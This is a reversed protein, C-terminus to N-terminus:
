RVVVLDKLKDFTAPGVVKRSRLDEISAFPQEERAAIIKAATAPGIGPLTDLEEASAHNIDVLAGGGPSGSTGGATGSSGNSPGLGQPDDRSPVVIQDGDRVLAALNLAAGVRETAVRPGYGGAAAIADGVRSGPALHVVGPHVVAGQVDVVLVSGAAAGATSDVIRSPVPRGSAAADVIVAGHGSGIAIWGAVAALAVAGALAVIAALSRRDLGNGSGRALGATAAAGAPPSSAELARWPSASDDM